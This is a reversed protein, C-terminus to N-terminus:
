TRLKRQTYHEKFHCNACLIECKKIEELIKKRSWGLSAVEALITDKEKPDIHHFQITAPHDEGCRNCKLQSKLAMYWSKIGRKRAAVRAMERKKNAAYYTNRMQRHCSKCECSLKDPRGKNKSFQSVFKEQGCKPCLKAVLLDLQM